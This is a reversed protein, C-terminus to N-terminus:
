KHTTEFSCGTSSASPCIAHNCGVGISSNSRHVERDGWGNSKRQSKLLSPELDLINRQEFDVFGEANDDAGGLLNKVDGGVLDVNVPADQSLPDHETQM